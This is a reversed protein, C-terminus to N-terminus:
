LNSTSYFVILYVKKNPSFLILFVKAKIIEADHIISTGWGFKMYDVYEGSIDMLSEATELGLGKDLVMTIGKTRPKEERKNLLFDFAKLNIVNKYIICKTKILIINIIKM